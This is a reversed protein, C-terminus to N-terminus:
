LNVTIKVLVFPHFDVRTPGVQMFHIAVTGLHKKLVSVCLIQIVVSTFRFIGVVPFFLFVTIMLLVSSFALNGLSTRFQEKNVSQSTVM